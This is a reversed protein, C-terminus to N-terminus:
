WSGCRWFNVEISLAKDFHHINTENKTKADPKLGRTSYIAVWINSFCAPILANEKTRTYVDFVLENITKKKNYFSNFLSKHKKYLENLDKYSKLDFASGLFRIDFYHVFIVEQRIPRLNIYYYKIIHLATEDITVPM